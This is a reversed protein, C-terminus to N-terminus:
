QDHDGVDAALSRDTIDSPVTWLRMAERGGTLIGRGDATFAATNIRDMSDIRLLESGSSVDWLRVSQDSSSVWMGSGDHVGSAASLLTRGDPSFAVATIPGTHGRFTRVLQLTQTDFMRLVCNDPDNWKGDAQLKGRHGFVIHRGDHSWALCGAPTDQKPFDHIVAGSSVDLLMMRQRAQAVTAIRQANPSFHADTIWDDDVDFERILEGSEMSWLWASNERKGVFDANIAFILQDDPSFRVVEVRANHSDLQRVQEGTQLDWLLIMGSPVAHKSDENGATQSKAREESGSVAFRGDSTIDVAHIMGTHGTLSFIHQGTDVDWLSLNGHYGGTLVRNGDPTVAISTVGHAERGSFIRKATRIQTPLRRKVRMSPRATPKRSINITVGSGDGLTFFSQSVRFEDKRSGLAVSYRGSPLDLEGSGRHEVTKAPALTVRTRHGESTEHLIKNFRILVDDDESNVTVTGGSPATLYRKLPKLLVLCIITPLAIWLLLDNLFRLKVLEASTADNQQLEELAENIALLEDSHSDDSLVVDDLSIRQRDGGHKKAQRKRARDVLIRRMAEAAAAFFHGRSEWKQQERVDVLRVYAEHVLATPQLTRGQNELAMKRAALRRLEAYVLPLLRDSAEADGGEIAKLIQTVPQEGSM